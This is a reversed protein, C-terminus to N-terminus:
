EKSVRVKLLSNCLSFTLRECPSAHGTRALRGSGSKRQYRTNEQKLVKTSHSPSSHPHTPTNSNNEFYLGLRRQQRQAAHVTLLPPKLIRHCHELLGATRSSCLSPRKRPAAPWSPQRERSAGGTPRPQRGSSLQSVTVALKPAQCGSYAVYSAQKEVKLLALIGSRLPAQTMCLTYPSCCSCVRATVLFSAHALEELPVATLDVHAVLEAHAIHAAGDPFVHFNTSTLCDAALLYWQM